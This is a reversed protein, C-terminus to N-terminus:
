TVMLTEDSDEDLEQYDVLTNYGSPSHRGDMVDRHKNEKKDFLLLNIIEIFSNRQSIKISFSSIYPTLSLFICYNTFTIQEVFVTLLVLYFTVKYLFRLLTIKLLSLTSYTM